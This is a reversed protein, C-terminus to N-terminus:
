SIQLKEEFFMRVTSCPLNSITTYNLIDPSVLMKGRAMTGSHNKEEGGLYSHYLDQISLVIKPHVVAEWIAQHIFNVFILM